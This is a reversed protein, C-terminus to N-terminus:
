AAPDMHQLHGQTLTEYTLRKGDTQKMAVMFRESDNLKRTNYRFDQEALYREQHQPSMIVYTGHYCRDLLNWYGEIGNTHAKTGDEHEIVYQGNKHDVTMHNYQESLGNYGKASDTFLDADTAVNERVKAQLTEKTNDPIVMTRVEGDRERFGMVATKPFGRERMEQRKGSHMNKAKGGIYTEDCEVEGEMKAFSGTRMVFRIRHLLFWATKQCVGLARAVECSSIGNKASTILWIAVLWTDLKIPSDEMVTGVKASFRKKCEKCHWVRRTSIFSLDKNGCYPCTVGEPWRISVFFSHAIEPDSYYRVAEILTKPVIFETAM